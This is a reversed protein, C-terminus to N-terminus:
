MVRTYFRSYPDEQYDGFPGCEVFGHKEYLAIAPLFADHSGTELSIETYARQKAEEIIVLLIKEAIGKRLHALDTKMSKIEGRNGPPLEKLAGCALLEGESRAAWFTVSTDKLKAPDIAHISEPPSYKFMEQRHAELLKIIAGDSLDDKEIKIM